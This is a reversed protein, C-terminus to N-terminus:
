ESGQHGWRRGSIIDSVAFRSVGYREALNAKPDPHGRPTSAYAARIELVQSPKLKQRGRGKLFMDRMNDSANGLFLHAPNVCPRVDCKHLVHMGDPIPGNHAMWSARHAKMIRGNVSIDCYGKGEPAAPWLWCGGNTDYEAGSEIRSILSAESM